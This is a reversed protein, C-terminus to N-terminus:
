FRIDNISKTRTIECLPQISTLKSHFIDM